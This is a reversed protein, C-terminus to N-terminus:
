RSVSSEAQQVAACELLGRLKDRVQQGEVTSPVPMMRLLIVAAIVNQSARAFLPPQDDGENNNIRHYVDRARRWAAGGDGLGSCEQELSAQLHVLQQCDEDIKAELEARRSGKPAFVAARERPPGMPLVQQLLTHVGQGVPTADGPAIEKVEVHFCERSPGYDEEDSNPCNFLYDCAGMFQRLDEPNRLGSFNARAWGDSDETSDASSTMSTTELLELTTHLHHEPLGMYSSM